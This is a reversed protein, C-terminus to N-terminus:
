AAARKRTLTVERRGRSGGVLGLLPKQRDIAWAILVIRLHGSTWLGLRGLPGYGHRVPLPEVHPPEVSLIRVDSM